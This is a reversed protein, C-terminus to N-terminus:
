PAVGGRIYWVGDAVKEPKVPTPNTRVNEPVPIDISPNARVATVTLDLSPHGDQYQIIKAPFKVGAFDRYPGYYTVVKMDGVVPHGYWSEIKEIANEDNAYAIVRQKRDTFSIVTMQRGEVSKKGVVANNAFAARLLGHPGEHSDIGRGTIM